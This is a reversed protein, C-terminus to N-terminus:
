TWAKYINNNLIFMYKYYIIIIIPKYKFNKIKCNSPYDKVKIINEKKFKILYM